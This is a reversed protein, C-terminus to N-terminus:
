FCNVFRNANLTIGNCIKAISSFTHTVFIEIIHHYSFLIGLSKLILSADRSAIHLASTSRKSKPAVAACSYIREPAGGAVGAVASLPVNSAVSGNESGANPLEEVLPV